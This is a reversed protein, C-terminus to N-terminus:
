SSSLIKGLFLKNGERNLRSNLICVFFMINIIIEAPFIRATQDPPPRNIAVIERHDHAVIACRVYAVIEHDRWNQQGIKMTAELYTWTDFPSDDIAESLHRKVCTDQHHNRPGLDVRNVRKIHHLEYGVRRTRGRTRYLLIIM